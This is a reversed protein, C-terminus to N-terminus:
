PAAKLRAPDSEATLVAVYGAFGAACLDKILLEGGKDPLNLETLVM